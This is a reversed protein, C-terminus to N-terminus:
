IRRAILHGPHDPEVWVAGVDALVVEQGSELKGHAVLWDTLRVAVRSDTETLAGDRGELTFEQGIFFGLGDSAFSQRSRSLAVLALVPFPGGALWLRVAEAFWTPAMAVRAPLWCVAELGPMQVLELLLGAAVRVVPLLHQAGALHPGPAVSVADLGTESFDRPLGIVHAARAAPQAPAPRLGGFDFTLGDRLVEATGDGESYDAVDECIVALSPAAAAIMDRSPRHAPDFLLAAIPECGEAQRKSVM